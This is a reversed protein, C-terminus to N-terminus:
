EPFLFIYVYKFKEVNPALGTEKSAVLFAKINKKVTLISEGMLNIDDACVV